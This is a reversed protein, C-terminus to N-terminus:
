KGIKKTEEITSSVGWPFCSQRVFVDKEKEIVEVMNTDMWIIMVRNYHINYNWIGWDELNGDPDVYIVYHDEFLRIAGWSRCDWCGVPWENSFCTIPSLYLLLLFFLKNM